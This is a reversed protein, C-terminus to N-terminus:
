DDGELITELEENLAALDIEGDLIGELEENLLIPELEKNNKIEELIGENIAGGEELSKNIIARVDIPTATTGGVVKGRIKNM